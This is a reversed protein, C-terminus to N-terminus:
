VNRKSRQRMERGKRKREGKGTRGYKATLEVGNLIRVTKVIGENKSLSNCNEAFSGLVKIVKDGTGVSTTVEGQEGFLAAAKTIMILQESTLYM